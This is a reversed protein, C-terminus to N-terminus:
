SAVKIDDIVWTSIMDTVAKRDEKTLTTIPARVRRDCLGLQHLAEKVASVNFASSDKARLEEFARIMQWQDIASPYDGQSLSHFFNLSVEPAVNVLGSTFGTAGAAFQSPAYSEALGAIWVLDPLNADAKAAAFDVPEPLAYKIAVFNPAVASLEALVAGTVIPSKLYPVLGLNPVAEAIQRHYDIWGPGSIHPHVPQHVMVADAGLEAARRAEAIASAIPGGIGALVVADGSAASVIRLAESREAPTLSHYESTNGNPTLAPIGATVMRSTISTLADKDIRDDSNFPTVTIAVVGTLKTRLNAFTM